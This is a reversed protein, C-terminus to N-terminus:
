IQELEMIQSKNVDLSKSHWINASQKAKCIVKSWSKGKDANLGRPKKLVQYRSKRANLALLNIQDSLGNITDLIGNNENVQQEVASAKSQVSSMGQDLAQIASMSNQNIEFAHAAFETLQNSAELTNVASNSIEQSTNAMQEIAATINTSNMQTTNADFLIEATVEDLKNSM